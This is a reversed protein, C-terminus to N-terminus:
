TATPSPLVTRNEDYHRYTEGSGIFATRLGDDFQIRLIGFGAAISLAAVVLSATAPFRLMLMSLRPMSM